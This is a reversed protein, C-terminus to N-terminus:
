FTSSTQINKSQRKTRVWGSVIVEENSKPRNIIDLIKVRKEKTM